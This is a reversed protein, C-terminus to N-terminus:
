SVYSGCTLRKENYVHSTREALIEGPEINHIRNNIKTTSTNLDQLFGFDDLDM